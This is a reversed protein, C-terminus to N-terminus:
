LVLVIITVMVPALGKAALPVSIEDGHAVGRPVRLTAKVTRERVGTGGCYGCLPLGRLGFGDCRGCVAETRVDVLAECGERAERETLEVELVACDGFACASDEPFDLDRFFEDFLSPGFGSFRDFVHVDPPFSRSASTREQEARVSAMDYEARRVPDSLVEYAARARM